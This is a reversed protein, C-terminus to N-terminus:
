AAPAFTDDDLLAMYISCELAIKGLDDRPAGCKLASHLFRMLLLTFFLHYDSAKECCKSTHEAYISEWFEKIELYFKQPDIDAMAWGKNEIRDDFTYFFDRLEENPLKAYMQITVVISFDSTGFYKNVAASRYYKGTKANTIAFKGGDEKVAQHCAFGALCSAFILAGATDWRDGDMYRKQIMDAVPENAQLFRTVKEEYDTTSM